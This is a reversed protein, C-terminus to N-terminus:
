AKRKEDSPMKFQNNWAEIETSEIFKCIMDEFTPKFPLKYESLIELQENIKAKIEPKRVLSATELQIELARLMTYAERMQKAKVETFKPVRPDNELRNILDFNLIDIKKCNKYTGYKLYEETSPEDSNGVTDNLMQNLEAEIEKKIQELNKAM